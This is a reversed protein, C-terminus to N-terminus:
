EACADPQFLLYMTLKREKYLSHEIDREGNSSDNQKITYESTSRLPEVSAHCPKSCEREFGVKNVYLKDEFRKLLISVKAIPHGEEDGNSDCHGKGPKQM